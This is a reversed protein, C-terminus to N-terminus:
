IIVIVKVGNKKNNKKNLYCKCVVLLSLMVKVINEYM